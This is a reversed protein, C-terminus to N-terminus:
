WSALKDLVAQSAGVSSLVCTNNGRRWTTVLRRGLRLTQLRVGNEVVAPAKPWGLAPAGVITYALTAAGKAYYVTVARRGNIRDVREGTARWGFAGAWNPFYLNDIRTDLRDAFHDSDPRPTSGAVPARSSLAVAQALSPAGPTGGPAVLIVLAVVAAVATAFAGAYVGTGRWAPRASHQAHMSRIQAHLRPPAVDRDRAVRLADVIDDPTLPSDGPATM